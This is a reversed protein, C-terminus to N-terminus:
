EDDPICSLAAILRCRVRALNAPTLCVCLALHQRPHLSLPGKRKCPRHSRLRTRGSQLLM